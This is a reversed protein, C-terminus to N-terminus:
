LPASSKMDCSEAGQRDTQEKACEAPSAYQGDANAMLGQGLEECPELVWFCQVFAVSVTCQSAQMLKFATSAGGRCDLGASGGYWERIPSNTSALRM